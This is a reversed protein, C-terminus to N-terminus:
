PCFKPNASGITNFRPIKTRVNPSVMLIVIALMIPTNNAIIMQRSIYNSQMLKYDLHSILFQILFIRGPLTSHCSFCPTLRKYTKIGQKKVEYFYSLYSFDLINIFFTMFSIKLLYVQLFVAKKCSFKLIKVFYLFFWQMM